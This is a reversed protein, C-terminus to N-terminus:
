IICIVLGDKDLSDVWFSITRRGIKLDLINLFPCKAIVWSLQLAVDRSELHHDIKGQM